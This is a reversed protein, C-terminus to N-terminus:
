QFTAKIKKKIFDTSFPLILFMSFGYFISVSTTKLSNPMATLGRFKEKLLYSHLYTRFNEATM